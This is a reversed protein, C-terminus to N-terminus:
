FYRIIFLGNGHSSAVYICYSVAIHTIRDHLLATSIVISNIHDVSVCYNLAQLLHTTHYHANRYLLVHCEYRFFVKLIRVDSM